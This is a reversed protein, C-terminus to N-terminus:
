WGGRSFSFPLHYPLHGSPPCLFPMHYLSLVGIGEGLSPKKRGLDDAKWLKTLTVRVFFELFRGLAVLISLTLVEGQGVGEAGSWGLRGRSM